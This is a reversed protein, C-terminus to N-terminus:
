NSCLTANIEDNGFITKVTSTLLETTRDTTVAHAYFITLLETTRDTTVAHAYFISIYMFVTYTMQM